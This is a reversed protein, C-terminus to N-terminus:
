NPTRGLRTVLDAMDKWLKQFSRSRQYALMLDMRATLREQDVTPAYTKGESMHNELWEKAGQISEPGGPPCSTDPRIRNCGRLSDVSAIFRNEYERVVFVVYVPLGQRISRAARLLDPGLIKACDDHVDFLILVATCEPDTLALRVGREVGEPTRLQGRPIRIPEVVQLEYCGHHHLIRRLLVPVAKVEGHGEVIPILKM